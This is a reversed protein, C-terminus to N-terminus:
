ENCIERAIDKRYYESNFSVQEIEKYLESLPVNDLNACVSILRNCSLYKIKKDNEYDFQGYQIKINPNNIGISLEAKKEEYLNLKYDEDVIVVCASTGSKWKLKTNALKQKSMKIFVDLIDSDLHELIAQGEPDGIRTNFELTYLENSNTKHMLGSYIVGIYDVKNKRLVKQLNKVYNKILKDQMKSIRLPIYSGLGGTNIGEDNDKLRKYDRVPLLPLLTKGDWFMMLSIEQGVIFKEAILTTKTPLLKGDKVDFVSIEEKSLLENVQKEAEEKTKLIYTGFGNCEVDRKIVLPFELKSIATSIDENKKIVFHEPTLINNADMFRKGFTKLGELEVWHQTVGIVKAMSIKKIYDIIGGSSIFPDFAIVIDIKKEKLMLGLNANTLELFEGFKAANHNRGFLYLKNLLKSKSIEEALAYDRCTSCFLLVNTKKKKFIDTIKGLM